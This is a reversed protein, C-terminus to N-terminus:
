EIVSRISEIQQTKKHLSQQFILNVSVTLVVDVTRSFQREGKSMRLQNARRRIIDGMAIFVIRRM